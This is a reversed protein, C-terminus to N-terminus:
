DQTPSGPLEAPKKNLGLQEQIATLFAAGAVATGQLQDPTWKLDVDYKGTLGTKDLVIRGLRDSLYLAFREIPQGHIM